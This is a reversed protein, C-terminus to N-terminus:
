KKAPAAPPEWPAGKYLKGNELETMMQDILKQKAPVGIALAISKLYDNRQYEPRALYADMLKRKALESKVNGPMPQKASPHTSRNMRLSYWQHPM